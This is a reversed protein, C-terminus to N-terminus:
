IGKKRRLSLRLHLTSKFVTTICRSLDKPHQYNLPMNLLHETNLTELMIVSTLTDLPLTSKFYSGPIECCIEERLVVIRLLLLQFYCNKLIKDAEEPAKVLSFQCTIPNLGPAEAGAQQRQHRWNDNNKRTYRTNLYAQTSWQLVSVAWTTISETWNSNNHSGGWIDVVGGEDAGGREKSRQRNRFTIAM